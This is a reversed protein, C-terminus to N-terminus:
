RRMNVLYIGAAVLVAGALLSFTLEDGLFLHSFLVGSLPTVFFLVVLKSASYRELIATWALFCFGAIVGGQYLLAASSAFTLQFTGGREFLFSLVAYAPLSLGLYWVLLRYPHISQVLLKTVVVRLGLFCGSALVLLDGLINTEGNGLDPAVTVFVGSFAIIIGLTKTVSLREGPIWFHAFLATFFPYVNVFITSRSATTFMTGTNLVIIQSIFIVTLLLLRSFEGRNLGLPIRRYLAWGGVVVLGIVFRFFALAMPPLDELGVKIAPSNGGWLFALLLSLAIIKGHPDESIVHRIPSTGISEKKNM